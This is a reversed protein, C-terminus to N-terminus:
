RNITAFTSLFRSEHSDKPIFLTLAQELQPSLFAFAGISEPGGGKRKGQQEAKEKDKLV